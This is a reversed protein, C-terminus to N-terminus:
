LSISLLALDTQRYSSLHPFKSLIAPTFVCLPDITAARLANAVYLELNVCVKTYWRVVHATRTVM